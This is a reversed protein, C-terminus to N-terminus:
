KNKKLFFSDDVISLYLAPNMDKSNPMQRFIGCQPQFAMGIGVDSPGYSNKLITLSRYKKNGPLKGNNDERLQNIDYFYADIVKLSLPDFVALVVEADEPINGTEKFDDLIPLCGRESNLRLPNTISRNFQCTALVTYGYKDRADLLHESVKDMAEKKTLTKGEKKNNETGIRNAPDVIILVFEKPNNPVYISKFYEYGSTKRIRVIETKGRGEAFERVKKYIDTPNNRGAHVTLIKDMIEKVFEMYKRVLDAKEPGLTYHIKRSLIEDPTIIMKHDLFIKRSIWRAIKEDMSRELSWYLIKFDIGEPKNKLFWEAPNFVFAEDIFTTNHTVTFDELIFLPDNKLTFGFYEGKGVQKIEIPTIYFRNKSKKSKKRSIKIPVDTFDGKIAIRYVLCEYISSDKRKMKAIKEKCIVRMGLSRCLYCIDESLKKNKQTIEYSGNHVLYGDSDILGALIQRRIESSNQLYNFPIHKNNILCYNTLEKQLCYTEDIREWKRGHCFTGHNLSHYISTVNVGLISSAEKVSSFDCIFDDIICRIKSVPKTISHTINTKNTKFKHNISLAFEQLFSIVEEDINTVNSCSSSGDGLWLGLYYPDIKIDKKSFEILPSCYGYLRSKEYKSLKLYDEISINLVKGYKKVLSPVGSILSIIHSKNVTYPLGYRQKITFMEEIGNGLSIVPNPKSNLSMVSDTTTIYEVNKFYGDSMLVKTGKALCKGVGTSAGVCYYVKKRISMFQDLKPFGTSLSVTNGALGAEFAKKFKNIDSNEDDDELILRYQKGEITVYEAAKVPEEDFDLRPSSGMRIM